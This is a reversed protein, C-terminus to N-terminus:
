KKKNLDLKYQKRLMNEMKTKNKHCSKCLVQLKNADCFLNNIFEDWTWDNAARDVPRIPNIHDVTVDNRTYTKSPGCEKCLYTNRDIRASIMAKNREPYRYSARRLVNILYQRLNFVKAM